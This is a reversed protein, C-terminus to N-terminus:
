NTSTDLNKGLRSDDRILDEPTPCDLDQIKDLAYVAFLEWPKFIDGTSYSNIWLERYTLYEGLLAPCAKAMYAADIRAVVLPFEGSPEFPVIESELVEISQNSSDLGVWDNKGLVLGDYTSLQGTGFYGEWSEKTNASWNRFWDDYSDSQVISNFNLAVWFTAVFFMFSFPLRVWYWLNIIRVKKPPTIPEWKRELEFGRSEAEVGNDSAHDSLRYEVNHSDENPPKSM